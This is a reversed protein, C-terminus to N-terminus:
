TWNTSHPNQPIGGGSRAPAPAPWRRVTKGGAHRRSGAPRPRARDSRAPRPAASQRRSRHRGATRCFASAGHIRQRDARRRVPCVGTGGAPWLRAALHARVLAAPFPPVRDQLRALEDAIDPPMLDRRTSLMQGFKVFIPGLAELARRLRVARPESLHRWFLTTKVLWRLARVREHGLFFEDLGFRLAVWVITILRLFACQNQNSCVFLQLRKELRGTQDRVRMWKPWSPLLMVPAQRAAPTRRHCIRGPLAAHQGRCQTALEHLRCAGVRWATRPSM